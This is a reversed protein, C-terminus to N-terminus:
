NSDPDDLLDSLRPAQEEDRTGALGLDSMLQQTAIESSRLTAVERSFTNLPVRAQKKVRRRAALPAVLSRGSELRAVQATEESQLTGNRVLEMRESALGRAREEVQKAIDGESRQPHGLNVAVSGDDGFRFLALILLACFLLSAAVTAGRLWLPSLSFFERLAAV